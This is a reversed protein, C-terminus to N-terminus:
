AIEFEAALAEIRAGVEALFEAAGIGNIFRHDFCLVLRVKKEWKLEDNAGRAPADYPTGVFLTAAAPPVVVPVAWCIGYNSLDTIIVQALASTEAGGRAVRIAELLAISFAEFGYTQARPLVATTLEDDPLGVAIGLTVSGYQRLVDNGLLTSRFRPHKDMAGCVCWAVFHLSSPRLTASNRAKFFAKTQELAEWRCEIEIVGPVAEHWARTLHHALRKHRPSLPADVFGVEGRATLYREVDRESVREGPASQAIAAIDGPTLGRKQCYARVRPSISGNRLSPPPATETVGNGNPAGVANTLGNVNASNNTAGNAGNSGNLAPLGDGITCVTHGVPLIEDVEALWKEVVGDVPSEVTFVAKDTELELIPEDRRILQGVRALHSVIRAETLGEGMQPITIPTSAM